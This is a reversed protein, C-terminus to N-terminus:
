VDYTEIISYMQNRGDGRGGVLFIRDSGRMFVASAAYRRHTNPALLDWTDTRINYRQVQNLIEDRGGKGGIIYIFQESQCIAFDFAGYIMNQKRTIDIINASMDLDIRYVWNNSLRRDDDGGIIYIGGDTTM